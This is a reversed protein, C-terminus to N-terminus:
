KKGAAKARQPYLPALLRKEEPKLKSVEIANAVLLADARRGNALLVAAYVAQWSPATWRAPSFDKCARLAENPKGAKLRALAYTAAFSPLGPGAAYIEKAREQPKCSSDNLLLALYALDNAVAYDQPYLIVLREITRMLQRTRGLKEYYKVLKFLSELEAGPEHSLLEYAQACKGTEGISEAYQAVYRLTEKDSGAERLARDWYSAFRDAQGLERAVRARYLWLLVPRTPFLNHRLFEDLGAWLGLGAMADLQILILEEPARPNLPFAALTQQLLGQRNLWAALACQDVPVLDPAMSVLKRVALEVRRTGVVHKLEWECALCQDRIGALPHRRLQDAVSRDFALMEPRQVGWEVVMRLAVLGNEDMRNGLEVLRRLGKRLIEVQGTDALETRAMGIIAPAYNADIALARQFSARALVIDHNQMALLGGLYHAEKGPAPMQLLYSLQDQALEPFNERLAACALGLRDEATAKPLLVIERWREVGGKEGTSDAVRAQLRM